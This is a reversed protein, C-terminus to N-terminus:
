NGRIAGKWNRLVARMPREYIALLVGGTVGLALGGMLMLWEGFSLVEVCKAIM